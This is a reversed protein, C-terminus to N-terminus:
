IQGDLSTIAEEIEPKKRNDPEKEYHSYYRTNLVEDKVSKVHRTLTEVHHPRVFWKGQEKKPLSQVLYRSYYDTPLNMPYSSTIDDYVLNNQELVGFKKM